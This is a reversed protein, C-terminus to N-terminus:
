QVLFPVTGALCHAPVRLRLSSSMFLITVLGIIYAVVVYAVVSRWSCFTQFCCCVCFEGSDLSHGDLKVPSLCPFLWSERGFPFLCLAPHVHSSVCWVFVQSHTLSLSISVISSHKQIFAGCHHAQCFCGCQVQLRSQPGLSYSEAAFCISQKTSTALRIPPPHSYSNLSQLLVAFLHRVTSTSPRTSWPHSYSEEAFCCVLTASYKYVGQPHLSQM